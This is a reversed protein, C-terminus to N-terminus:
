DLSFCESMPNLDHELWKVSVMGRGEGELIVRCPRDVYETVIHPHLALVLCMPDQIDYRNNNQKMGEYIERM